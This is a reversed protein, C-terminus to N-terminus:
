FPNIYKNRVNVVAGEGYVYGYDPAYWGVLRSGCGGDWRGMVVGWVEERDRFLENIEVNKAICCRLLSM